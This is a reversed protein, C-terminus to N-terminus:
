AGRLKKLAADHTFPPFPPRQESMIERRRAHMDRSQPSESCRRVRSLGWLRASQTVKRRFLVIPASWPWDGAGVQQVPNARSCPRGADEVDRM